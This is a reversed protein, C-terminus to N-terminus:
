VSNRRHRHSRGRYSTDSENWIDADNVGLDGYLKQVESQTALKDLDSIGQIINTNRPDSIQKLSGESEVERHVGKSEALSLYSYVRM